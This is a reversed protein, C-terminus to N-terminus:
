RSIRKIGPLDVNSYMAYNVWKNPKVHAYELGFNTRKLKFLKFTELLCKEERKLFGLLLKTEFKGQCVYAVAQFLDEISIYFFPPDFVLVRWNEQDPQLDANQPSRLDFYQFKPLYEFRTDIDLLSVEKGEAWWAHALSPTCLCCNADPDFTLRLGNLIGDITKETWFYQELDRRELFGRNFMRKRKDKDKNSAIFKKESNDM